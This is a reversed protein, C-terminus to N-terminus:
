CVPNSGLDTSALVTVRWGSLMDIHRRLAKLGIIYWLPSVLWSKISCGDLGIVTLSLYFNL